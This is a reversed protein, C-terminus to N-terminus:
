RRGRLRHGGSLTGSMVQPRPPTALHNLGALLQDYRAAIARRRRISDDLRTLQSLGLACQMESSRYNWGLEHMEYYWPADPEPAHSWIEPDRTMGHSRFLRARDAIEANNTLVAGGEGMAVHKIAHFSFIAADSHACAGVRHEEGTGDRYSALPAHSADEILALGREATLRRLEAMDCARGGLHVVCVAAIASRSARLATEITESTVNGTSADVDRIGVPAGCQSAARRRYSRSQSTLLGRSQGLDLALYALICRRRGSNCVVAHKAGFVGALAMEFEALKPGQTLYQGQM